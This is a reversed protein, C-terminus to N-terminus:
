RKKAGVHVPALQATIGQKTGGKPGDEPAALAMVAYAFQVGAFVIGNFVVMMVFALWGMETETVLHKLGGVDLWVVASVFALALAFGIAVNVIYLRILKPM